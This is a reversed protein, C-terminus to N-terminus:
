KLAAAAVAGTNLSVDVLHFDILWRVIKLPETTVLEPIELIMKLDDKSSGKRVFDFAPLMENSSRKKVKELFSDMIKLFSAVFENKKFKPPILIKYFSPFILFYQTPLLPVIYACFSYRMYIKFQIQNNKLFDDLHKIIFDYIMEWLKRSNLPYMNNTDMFKSLAKVQDELKDKNEEAGLSKRQPSGEGNPGGLNEQDEKQEILKAIKMDNSALRIDFKDPKEFALPDALLAFALTILSFLRKLM